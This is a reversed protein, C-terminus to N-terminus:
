AVGDCAGRVAIAQYHSLAVALYQQALDFHARQPTPGLSQITSRTAQLVRQRLRRHAAQHHRQSCEKHPKTTTEELRQLQRLAQACVAAYDWVPAPTKASRPTM